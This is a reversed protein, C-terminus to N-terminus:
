RVSQRFGRRTSLRSQAASPNLPRAADALTPSWWRLQPAGLPHTTSDFFYLRETELVARIRAQRARLRTRQGPTVSVAIPRQPHANLADVLHHDQASLSHGFVVLPDRRRRLACLAFRLYDNAEIALLKDRSSGETVLLPRAHPDDPIAQGFQALLMADARRLKRTVGNGQVILHLAGHLFLVPTVAPRVALKTPDFENRGNSWFYDCFGAFTECSGMAWYAILDYNTTFVHSFARLAARVQRLARDPVAARAIHTAGITAGLADQIRRYRHELPAPDSNCASAVAIASKLEALVLEFNTTAGLAAFLREDTPSLCGLKAREFLSRYAFGPWLNVSLGNGALLTTWPGLQAVDQWRALTGDLSHGGTLKRSDHGPQRHGSM